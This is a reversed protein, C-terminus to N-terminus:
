GLLSRSKAPSVGFKRVYRRYFSSYDRFGSELFVTRVSKGNMIKIHASMLRKTLIYDWVTTGTAKKFKLNLNSKSIFFKKSLQELSIEEALHENIYTIITNIPDDTQIKINKGEKLYYYQMDWFIPMCYSYLVMQLQYKERYLGCSFQRVLESFCQRILTQNLQDAPYYSGVGTPRESLIRFVEKQPTMMDILQESFHIMIREYPEEDSILLQHTEGPHMLLICGPELRYQIGEVCYEGKGSVFYYLEYQGHAHMKFSTSDPTPDILHQITIAPSYYQFKAAM